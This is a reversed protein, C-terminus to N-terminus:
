GKSLMPPWKSEVIKEKIIRLLTLLVFQVVKTNLTREYLKPYGGGHPNM